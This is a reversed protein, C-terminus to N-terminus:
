FRGIELVFHVKGATLNATGITMDIKEGADLKISSQSAPNVCAGLSFNAIASASLFATGAAAKGASITASGGSTVAAEALAYRLKVLCPVKAEFLDFSGQAGGDKSFDYTVRVVEVSQSAPAGLSKKDKAVAM